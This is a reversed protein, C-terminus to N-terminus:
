SSAKVLAPRAPWHRWLMAGLLCALPLAYVPAGGVRKLCSLVFVLWIVHACVSHLRQWRQRGLWRVAVDFSTMTMLVLAVYGAGGIWRSVPPTLEAWLTPDAWAALCAIGVAHCAHSTAFLLGVQRRHRLLAASWPSPAHRWWASAVFALLFLALSLRATVRILRRAGEADPQGLLMVATLLTLGAAGWCWVRWPSVADTRTPRQSHPANSESMAFASCTSIPAMSRWCKALAFDSHVSSVNFLLWGVM